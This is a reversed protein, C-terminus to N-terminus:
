DATTPSRRRRALIVALLGLGLLLLGGFVMAAIQAGTSALPGTSPTSAPVVPTSAPAVPAPVTVLTTSTNTGGSSDPGTAVVTNVAGFATAVLPGGNMSLHPDSATFTQIFDGSPPATATQYPAGNFTVTITSGPAFACTVTLTLSTGEPVSETFSCSTNVPPPPYGVAGAPGTLAFLGVVLAGLAVAM